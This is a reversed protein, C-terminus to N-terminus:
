TEDFLDMNVIDVVFTSLDFQWTVPTTVKTARTM